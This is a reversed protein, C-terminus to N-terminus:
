AALRSDHFDVTSFARYAFPHYYIDLARSPEGLVEFYEGERSDWVCVLVEVDCDPEGGHVWLLTVDVGSSSRHALETRITLKSQDVDSPPIIHAATTSM